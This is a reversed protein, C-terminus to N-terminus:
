CTAVPNEAARVKGQYLPNVAIGQTTETTVVESVAYASGATLALAVLCGAAVVGAIIGGSVIGAVVGIFSFCPHDVKVCAALQNSCNM